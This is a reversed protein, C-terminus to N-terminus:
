SALMSYLPIHVIITDGHCRVRHHNKKRWTVKMDRSTKNKLAAAICSKLNSILKSLFVDSKPCKWSCHSCLWLICFTHCLFHYPTFIGSSNFRLSSSSLSTLAPHAPSSTHKSFPLFLLFVAFTLSFSLSISSCHCVVAVAWGCQVCVCVYVCITTLPEGATWTSWLLVGSFSLVLSFMLRVLLPFLSLNRSSLSTTDPPISSHFSPHPFSSISPPFLPSTPLCLLLKPNHSSLLPIPWFTKLRVEASTAPECWPWHVLGCASQM